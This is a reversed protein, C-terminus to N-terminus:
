KTALPTVNYGVDILMNRFDSKDTDTLEKFEAIEIKRGFPQQTFFDQLAKVVSVEGNLM